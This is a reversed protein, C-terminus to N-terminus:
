LIIEKFLKLIYSNEFKILNNKFLFQLKKKEDNEALRIRTSAQKIDFTFRMYNVSNKNTDQQCYWISGDQAEYLRVALGDRHYYIGYLDAKKKKTFFMDGDQENLFKNDFLNGEYRTGKVLKYANSDKQYKIFDESNPIYELVVGKSKNKYIGFQGSKLEFGLVDHLISDATNLANATLIMKFDKRLSAVSMLSNIFQLARDGNYRTNTEPIFEDYLGIKVKSYQTGKFRRFLSAPMIFGAIEDNFYITGAKIDMKQIHRKYKPENLVEGFLRDGGDKEIEDCEAETDRFIVFQENHYINRNLLKKYAGYSKGRRRAGIMVYLWAWSNSFLRAPNYFIKNKKIM